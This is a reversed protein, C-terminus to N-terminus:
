IKMDIEFLYLASIAYASIIEQDKIMQHIDELSFAKKDIVDPENESKVLKLDKAVFVEAEHQMRGASPRFTGIKKWTKAEAGLEETLERKGANEVLEGEDVDGCVLDWHYDDFIYRYQRIMWIRGSDDVPIVCVGCPQEVVGYIGEKGDPKIVKDERVKIWPNEYVYKSSLKKWDGQM